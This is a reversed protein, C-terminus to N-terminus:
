CCESSPEELVPVCYLFFCCISSECGRMEPCAPLESVGADDPVFTIMMWEYKGLEKSDLRYAFSAPTKPAPLAEPLLAVDDKYSGKVNVTTHHKFSEPADSDAQGSARRLADCSRAEKFRDTGIPSPMSAARKSCGYEGGEIIFVLARVDTANNTASSFATKLQDPVKIGSPASM